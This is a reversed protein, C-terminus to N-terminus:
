EQSIALTAFVLPPKGGLIQTVQLFGKSHRLFHSLSQSLTRYQELFHLAAHDCSDDVNWKVMEVHAM